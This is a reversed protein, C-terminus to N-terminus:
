PSHKEGMNKLANVSVKEVVVVGGQGVGWNLMDFVVGALSREWCCFICYFGQGLPQM